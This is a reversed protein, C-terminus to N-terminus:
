RWSSYLTFKRAWRRPGEISSIRDRFAAYRQPNMAPGIFSISRLISELAVPEVPTDDCLVRPEGRKTGAVALLQEIAAATQRPRRPAAEEMVQRVAQMFPTDAFECTIVALAGEPTLIRAIEYAARAPDIFHVADAILVMDFCQSGLPLAEAMGHVTDLSAGAERALQRLRHLMEIAPEVATVAFGRTCLPLALHGLGAGIDAIRPGRSAALAAIADLLAEPYPPRAAYADVM